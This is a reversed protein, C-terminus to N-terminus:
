SCIYDSELTSPILAEVYPNTTTPVVCLIWGM